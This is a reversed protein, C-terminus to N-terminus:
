GAVAPPEAEDTDLLHWSYGGDADRRLGYSGPPVTRALAEREALFIADLAFREAEAEMRQVRGAPLVWWRGLPGADFVEHRGSREQALHCIEHRIFARESMAPLGRQILVIPAEDVRSVLLGFPTGARGRASLQALGPLEGLREMVEIMDALWVPPPDGDLGLDAMAEAVAETAAGPAQPTGAITQHGLQFQGRYEPLPKMSRM